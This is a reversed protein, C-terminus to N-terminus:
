LDKPLLRKALDTAWWNCRWVALRTADYRSKKDDPDDMWRGYDSTGLKRILTSAFKMSNYLYPMAARLATQAPAPGNVSFSHYVCMALDIEAPLDTSRVGIMSDLKTSVYKRYVDLEAVKNGSALWLAAYRSQARFTSQSSLVKHFREAWLAAVTHERGRRPVQGDPPTFTNRIEKGGVLTGDGRRLKGDPALTWGMGHFATEMEWVPDEPFSVSDDVIARLLAFFSGQEMGRPQVAINHLLGGSMAAGDYSQVSGWRPAELRSTLWVARELHNITTPQVFEVTGSIKIGSHSKYQVWTPIGM